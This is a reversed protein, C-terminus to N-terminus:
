LLDRHAARALMIQFVDSQLDGAVLERYNGAQGPRPFGTEGEVGDIRLTLATVDLREGGIRALEELLHLLGVDVTDFAKRRGDTDGLLGRAAARTRRNPGDGLDVVVHPEQEGRNSFRVTRHAALRNRVLRQTLDYIRNEGIRLVGPYHDQRGNHAVALALELLQEFLIELLPVQPGSHVALGTVQLVIDPKRLGARVRHFDDHVADQDLLSHPASHFGRDLSRHFQRFTQYGNGRQTDLFLEEGLALRADVAPHIDRHELRAREGEVGLVAGTRGTVAHPGTEYGQRFLDNQIGCLRNGPQFKWHFVVPNLAMEALRQDRDGTVEIQVLVRWKRSKGRFRLLDKEISTRFRNGVIKTIKSIRRFELANGPPKFVLM